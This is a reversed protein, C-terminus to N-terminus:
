RSFLEQKGDSFVSSPTRTLVAPGDKIPEIQLMCQLCKNMRLYNFYM